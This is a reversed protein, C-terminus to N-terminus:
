LGPGGTRFSVNVKEKWYSRTDDLAAQVQDGATTSAGFPEVAEQGTRWGWCCSMIPKRGPALTIAPFRFAGMAERGEATSGAKVGPYQEYVARPHLYTGGEGLFSEVTPYFAEPKQGEPGFGCVYYVKHNPRHGREDFSMTPRVMVGNETTWIRHLM